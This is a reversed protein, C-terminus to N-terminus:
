PGQHELIEVMAPSVDTHHHCIRWGGPERQYVNTVRLQGAVHEGGLNFEAHEVGVEYGVDGSVRVLQEKLQVKGDSAGQAVQDWTRWVQEWGVQRGGLPHMTTVSPSHSWIESLARSDGNLMRNLAAYFQASASRVEEEASM